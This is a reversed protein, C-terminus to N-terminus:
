NGILKRDTELSFLPCFLPMASIGRVVFALLCFFVVFNCWKEGGSSIFEMVCQIDEVEDTSLKVSFGSIVM